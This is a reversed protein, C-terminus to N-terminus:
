CGKEKDSVHLWFDKSMEWSHFPNFLLLFGHNSVFRPRYHGPDVYVDLAQCVVQDTTGQILAFMWSMVFRPGYHEEDVYVDM